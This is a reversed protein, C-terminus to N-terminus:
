KRGHNEHYGLMVEADKRAAIADIKLAFSGLHIHKGKGAIQAYWKNAKISWSVGVHGSTNDKPIKMNRMNDTHTANRLNSIRNDSRIGNIHDIQDAPWSGNVIAWIVRHALLGTHLVSGRRYGNMKSSFARNGSYRANWVNCRHEATRVGSGDFMDPTRERWYLKGTEPNYRLLKRLLEPSPLQKPM